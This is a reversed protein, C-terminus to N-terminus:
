SAPLRLEFIVGSNDPVNYGQVEGSHFDTILRVIHLGLGLHHDAEGSPKDRVSVMSDFLQGHMHSPLPPGENHVTFVVWDQHRYLGLEILGDEPCFDAANDVLKDLAQVLLEGSGSVALGKPDKRIKLRFCVHQYVDEYAAKLNELLEDCPIEERESADISQEVRSAASMANLINSLRTTGERARDAYVKAQDGLPEHELNDLSSRVIALPTRLEHSLKSSLTRLYNTYERLRTLLQAYSRSLDGLEDGSKFIPFDETIKGSETVALTAAESLKRIRLSLWTAYFVLSVAAFMSALFSYALIKSFAQNTIDAMASTSQEAVIAGIVANTTKTQSSLPSSARALPQNGLSFWSASPTGRLTQDIDKGELTGSASTGKLQAYERNGLALAYIWTLFGHPRTNKQTAVDISGHSAIVYGHPDILHLRTDHSSFISLEQSLKESQRIIPHLPSPALDETKGNAIQFGIGSAALSFPLTIEVQFGNPHELWVGKIRHERESSTLETGNEIRTVLLPGPASAYLAFSQSVTNLLIHDALNLNTESPNFYNIPQASIRLFIKLENGWQGVVIQHPSNEGLAKFEYNQSIWDDDYGDLYLPSLLPHAYFAANTNIDQALDVNALLTVLKEDSQIRASVARATAALAKTQGDRLASDMERITQCGVWPLGLTVLSLILLQKRLRM